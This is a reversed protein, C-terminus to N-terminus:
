GLNTTPLAAPHLGLSSAIDLLRVLSAYLGPVWHLIVIEGARLPLHDFTTLKGNFMSASWLVVYRLGAQGATIQVTRNFNGYPPRGLTPSKRFWTRFAQAAGVWQAKDAAWSMRSMDPHSVTHDEIDGGAAQFSRWYDLNPATWDSTLFATIPVHTRRMLALVDPDTTKGDDITIYFAGHDAPGFYVVPAPPLARPPPPIPPLRPLTFAVERSSEEGSTAGGSPLWLSFSRQGATFSITMLNGSPGFNGILQPRSLTVGLTTGVLVLAVTLAASWSLV